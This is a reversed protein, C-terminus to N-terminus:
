HHNWDFFYVPGVDCRIGEPCLCNRQVTVPSENLTDSYILLLGLYDAPPPFEIIPVRPRVKIPRHDYSVAGIMWPFIPPVRTGSNYRPIDFSAPESSYHMRSGRIRVYLLSYTACPSLPSLHSSVAPEVSVAILQSRVRQPACSFGAMFFCLSLVGLRGKWCINRICGGFIPTSKVRHGAPLRHRQVSAPVKTQPPEPIGPGLSSHPRGRNYHRVFERLLRKLHGETIPILFDLCERRITGVLRECFANAQTM